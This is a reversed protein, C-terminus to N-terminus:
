QKSILVNGYQLDFTVLQSRFVSIGTNVNNGGTIPGIQITNLGPTSGAKVTWLPPSGALPSLGLTTGNPAMGNASPAGPVSNDTFVTPSGTDFATPLCSAQSGNYAWCAQAQNTAWAPYGNALRNQTWEPMSYRALPTQPPNNFTITGSGDAPNAKISFSAPSGNALQSIPSYITDAQGGIGLIGSFGQEKAFNGIGSAGACNPKGEACSVTTVLQINIPGKTSLGGFTVPASAQVGGFTTGDAYTVSVPTDTRTVQDAGVQDAFIRLGPSGTDVLLAVNPGSAVSGDVTLMPHNGDVEPMALKVKTNNLSTTDFAPTGLGLASCGGLIATAVTAGVAVLLTARNRRVTLVTVLCHECESM